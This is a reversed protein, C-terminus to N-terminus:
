QTALGLQRIMRLMAHAKDIESQAVPSVQTALERIIEGQRRTAVTGYSTFTTLVDDHGLNQSWAKFTEPTQCRTEGLQALTSRLSHPNFYPLGAAEFARKFIERIPSATSWHERLLGVAEFHHSAGIAVQTNPFLPDDNGWLRERRLYSVWDAVIQCVDDGVPFFFTTFSKSFKTKVERADQFVSGAAIDVHKLKLSALATDRAGTLLAFALLARNRREIDTDTPMLALTHKVQELTPVPRQRRATAIRTDKESLNFYDADTYNLRAKYGPQLALWQFFRKLAALTAHQTAKSLKAGTVQSNRGALRRKFAVAAAYHFARFDRYRTDSEFQALATAAADVSADSQRKAEKLFAFYQRKIRENDPNHTTM